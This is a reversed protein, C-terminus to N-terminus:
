PSSGQHVALGHPARSRLAQAPLTSIGAAAAIEAPALAPDCSRQQIYGRIRLMVSRRVTGRVRRTDDLSDSLLTVVLDSAHALVRESQEAPLDQSHRALDLLFRSV